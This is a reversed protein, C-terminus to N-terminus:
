KEQLTFPQPPQAIVMPRNLKVLSNRMRSDFSEEEVLDRLHQEPKIEKKKRSASDSFKNNNSNKRKLDQKYKESSEITGM